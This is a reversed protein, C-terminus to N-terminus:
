NILFAEGTKIMNALEDPSFAKTLEFEGIRTRVLKILHAGSGLKKGLDNAISRIYTGKSCTIRFDIEHEEFRTIEFERIYVQHSKLEPDIGQRALKYARKGQVKRASFAPPTQIHAGIFEPIANKIKELTINEISYTQNIETELDYSPTTAGLYFTGTYEKETDQIQTISKTARGACVVLLGTALPDLTGAHGIKIKSKPFHLKLSKKLQNVADFSTWKYPKDVLWVVGKQVLEEATM